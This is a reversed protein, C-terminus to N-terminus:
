ELKCCKVPPYPFIATQMLPDALVSHRVGADWKNRAPIIGNLVGMM